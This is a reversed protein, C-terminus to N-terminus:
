NEFCLFLLDIWVNLLFKYWVCNYFNCMKFVFIFGFGFLDNLFRWGRYMFIDFFGDGVFILFSLYLICYMFGDWRVCSILYINNGSFSVNCFVVIFLLILFSIILYMCVSNVFVDM